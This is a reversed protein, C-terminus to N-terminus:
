LDDISWIIMDYKSHGMFEICQEKSVLLKQVREKMLARGPSKQFKSGVRLEKAGDGADDLHEMGPSLSQVIMRVDVADNGAAAKGSIKLEPAAASGKEDGHLDNRFLEAAFEKGMKLFKVITLIKM